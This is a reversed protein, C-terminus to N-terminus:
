LAGFLAGVGILIINLLFSRKKDDPNTNQTTMGETSLITANGDADAVELRTVHLIGTKLTKPTTFKFIYEGASSRTVARETVSFNDPGAVTITAGSAEGLGVGRDKASVLITVEDGSKVQAPTSRISLIEPPTLDVNMRISGRAVELDGIRWEWSFVNSGEELTLTPPAPQRDVSVEGAPVSVHLPVVQGEPRGTVYAASRAAAGTPTMRAEVGIILAGRVEGLEQAFEGNADAVVAADGLMVRAGPNTRGMIWWRGNQWLPTSLELPPATVAPVPIPTRSVVLTSNSSATAGSPGVPIIQWQYRGEPVNTIRIKNQPAKSELRPSGPDEPMLIFRYERAGPLPTWEFLVDPGSVTQNDRPSLLTIPSIPERIVPAAGRVLTAIRGAGIISTQGDPTTISAQGSRVNVRLVGTDSLSIGADGNNIQIRGIDADVHVPTMTARATIAGLDLKVLVGQRVPLIEQVWLVSFPAMEIRVDDMRLEATGTTATRLGSGPVLASAGSLGVWPASADPRYQVAGALRRVSPAGRFQDPPPTPAMGDDPIQLRMGASLARPDSINNLRALENWRSAAGLEREAIQSLSEGSAVVVERAAAPLTLLFLVSLLNATRVSIM